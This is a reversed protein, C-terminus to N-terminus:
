QRAAKKLRAIVGKRIGIKQYSAPIRTVAGTEAHRLQMHGQSNRGTPRWGHERAIALVEREDRNACSGSM